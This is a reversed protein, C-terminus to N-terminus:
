YGRREYFEEFAAAIEPLRELRQEWTKPNEEEEPLMAFCARQVAENATLEKLVRDCDEDSIIPSSKEALSSEEALNTEM